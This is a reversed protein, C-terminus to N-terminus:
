EGSRIDKLTAQQYGIESFAARCREGTPSQSSFGVMLGSDRGLTFYRVMHWYQGDTSYHFAFTHNVRSLRLYVQNDAIVISNCDDSVGRTVVSVIMPQRQPSFEFCLKAWLNHRAYLMLVGADFNSAFEVTVRAKLIFDGEGPSFLALPADDKVLDGKPDIFWDTSEGATISLTGDSEIAWALPANKWQLDYPLTPITFSTM